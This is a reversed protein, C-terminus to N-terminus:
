HNQGKVVINGSIKDALSLLQSLIRMRQQEANDKSQFAPEGSPQLTRLRLANRKMKAAAMRSLKCLVVQTTAADIEAFSKM